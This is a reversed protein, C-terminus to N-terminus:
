ATLAPLWSGIRALRNLSSVELQYARPESGVGVGDRQPGPLNIEVQETGSVQLDAALEIGTPLLERIPRGLLHKAPAGLISSAAPNLNVIKGETDLVLMGAHLQEIATQRALPIPDLIRFGFLALAYMLFEFAM